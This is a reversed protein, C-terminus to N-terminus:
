LAFGTKIQTPTKGDAADKFKAKLGAVEGEIAGFIKAVADAKIEYSTPNACNGLVRLADLVNNVRPVLVTATRQAPTKTDAAVTATAPAPKKPDAM